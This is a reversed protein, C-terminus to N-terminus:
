ILPSLEVLPQDIWMMAKNETDRIMDEGRLVCELLLPHFNTIGITELVYKVYPTLFDTQGTPPGVRGGCAAVLFTPRDKMLGIKGQPTNRFTRNPRVVYDIWTKLTAPVTYNHMPTDIVLVDSMEIERILSESLELVKADNEDRDGQSRLSAKVFAKDPYPLTQGGLNRTITEISFDGQIKSALREGFRRSFSASGRTSASIHLLKKM